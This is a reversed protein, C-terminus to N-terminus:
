DIQQRIEVAQVESYCANLVVCKLTDKFHHFLRSLPEAHTSHTQGIDNEFALGSKGGGHGCFHVVAPRFDLLARRLDDVTAAENTEITWKERNRSRELAHKIKKVESGLRLRDQDLPSAALILVTPM